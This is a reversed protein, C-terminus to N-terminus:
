FQSTEPESHAYFSQTKILHGPPSFPDVLCLM